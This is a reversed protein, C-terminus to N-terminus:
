VYSLDTHSAAQEMLLKTLANELWRLDEATDGTNQSNITIM